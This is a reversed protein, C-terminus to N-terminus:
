PANTETTKEFTELWEHFVKRSSWAVRGTVSAQVAIKVGGDIGQGKM